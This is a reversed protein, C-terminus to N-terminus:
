APVERHNDPSLVRALEDWVADAKEPAVRPDRTIVRSVCAQSVGLRAAIDLQRVRRSRLAAGIQYRTLRKIHIAHVARIIV